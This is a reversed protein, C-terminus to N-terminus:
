HCSPFRSPLLTYRALTNSEFLPTKSSLLTCWSVPV